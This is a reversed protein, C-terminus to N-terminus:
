KYLRLIFMRIKLKTVNRKILYESKKKKEEEELILNYLGTGAGIEDWAGAEQAQRKYVDKAKWVSGVQLLVM